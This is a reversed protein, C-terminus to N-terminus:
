ASPDFYCASKGTADAIKDLTKSTPSYKATELRSIHSQDLGTKEALEAQTLKAEKRALEIRKSVFELWSNLESGDISTMDSEVVQMSTQDLIENVARMASEQEEPGGNLLEPMLVYLDESDERSLSQVRERMVAVALAFASHLDNVNAKQDGNTAKTAM